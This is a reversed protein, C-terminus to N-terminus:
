KSGSNLMKVIKLKGIGIKPLATELKVITM